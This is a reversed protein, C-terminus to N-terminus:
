PLLTWNGKEHKVIVHARDDMGYVQNAEFNYVGHTGVLNKTSALADRLAVKYEPTGPQAKSGVRKAADTLLMWADFSYASYADNAAANNARQYAERYVVSAPRTPHSAPLQEAVVAPGTPAYMGEISNGAVRVFDANVLAHMGYLAGKYGREKLALYPLAGVAGATGALVADPRAAMVKLIQGTVSSDTRAYRENTVIKIDTGAVGKQLESYMLDGWADSFGIYAVTKVGTKKMHNIVASAMLNVSQVVSFTWGYQDPGFTVPNMVIHPTKTERAVASVAATGPISASGILVDVKEEDILKRANRAAASPDSADDLVILKITHDGVKSLYTQAAKMGHGYSIGQASAPGTLATIFGVKLEAASASLGWSLAALAVAKRAFSKM